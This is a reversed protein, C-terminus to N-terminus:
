TYLFYCYCYSLLINQKEAPGRTQPGGDNRNLGRALHSQLGGFYATKSVEKFNVCVSYIFSSASYLLNQLLMRSKINLRVYRSNYYNHWFSIETSPSPWQQWLGEDFQFGLRLM